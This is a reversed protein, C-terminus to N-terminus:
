GLIALPIHLTPSRDPHKETKKAATYHEDHRRWASSSVGMKTALAQGSKYFKMVDRGIYHKCIYSKDSAANNLCLRFLPKNKWMDGIVYDRQSM